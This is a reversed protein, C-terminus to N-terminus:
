PGTQAAEQATPYNGSIGLSVRGSKKRQTEIEQPASSGETEIILRSLEVMWKGVEGQSGGWRRPDRNERWRQLTIKPLVERTRKLHSDEKETNCHFEDTGGENWWTNKMWIGWISLMARGCMIDPKHVKLGPPASIVEGLAPESYGWSRPSQPDLPWEREGECWRTGERRSNWLEVGIM